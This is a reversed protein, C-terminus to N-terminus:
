RDIIDKLQFAAMKFFHWFHQVVLIFNISLSSSPQDWFNNGNVKPGLSVLSKSRVVIRVFNVPGIFPVHLCARIQKEMKPGFKLRSQM